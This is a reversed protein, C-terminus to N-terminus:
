NAKWTLRNKLTMAEKKENQLIMYGEMEMEGDEDYEAEIIGIVTYGNSKYFAAPVYDELGVEINVKHGVKTPEIRQVLESGVGQRRVDETVHLRMIVKQKAAITMNPKFYILYGIVRGQYEAVLGSYSVFSDDRSFIEELEEIIFADDYDGENSEIGEIQAYDDPNINRYTVANIDIM